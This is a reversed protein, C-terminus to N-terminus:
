SWEKFLAWWASYRNVGVFFVPSLQDEVLYSIINCFRAIYWMRQICTVNTHENDEM